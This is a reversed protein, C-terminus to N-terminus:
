IHYLTKILHCSLAERSALIQEQSWTQFGQGSKFGLKGEEVMKQLLPSPAHSDELDDLIYQHIRYTLDTGVMDINEMPGLQPLRLAFSYRIADDVAQPTAIGNEVMSIAERWLAHQLRNALFGPVDRQCLVPHKGAKQLIDMMKEAVSLATEKAKVVEVLPILHAPNWFHTGLFREKHLLREAILSHPIVSTNTCFITDTRCITEIEAFFQQKLELDEPIAEIVIDANQLATDDLQTVLKISEIRQRVTEETLVGYEVLAKVSEWLESHFPIKRHHYVAIDYQPLASMVFAIGKGMLGGGCIVITM